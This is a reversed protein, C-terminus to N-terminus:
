VMYALFYIVILVCYAPLTFPLTRCIKLKLYDMM